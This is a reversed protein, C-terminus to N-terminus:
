RAHLKCISPKLLCIKIFHLIAFTGLATRLFDKSPGLVTAASAIGIFEDSYRIHGFHLQDVVHTAFTAVCLAVDFIGLAQVFNLTLKGSQLPTHRSLPCASCPPPPCAAVRESDVHGEKSRRKVM